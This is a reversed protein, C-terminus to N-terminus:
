TSSPQGALIINSRGLVDTIELVKLVEGSARHLVVHREGLAKCFALLARLGDSGMFTLGRLDLHLDGAQDLVPAVTSELLPASEMDLEGTLVFTREATRLVGFAV